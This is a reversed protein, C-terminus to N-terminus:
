SIIYDLDVLYIKNVTYLNLYTYTICMTTNAIFKIKWSYKLIIQNKASVYKENIWVETLLINKLYIKININRTRM